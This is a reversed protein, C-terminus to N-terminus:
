EAKELDPALYYLSNEFYILQPLRSRVRFILNKLRNERSELDIQDGYLIQMLEFKSHPRQSLLELLREGLEGLKADPKNGEHLREQWTPLIQNPQITKLELQYKKSLVECATQVEPHNFTLAYFLDEQAQHTRELKFLLDARHVLGMGHERSGFAQRGLIELARYCYKLALHFGELLQFERSINILATAATLGENIELSKEVIQHYESFLRFHPYLCSRSAVASLSARLAKRVAGGRNYLSAAEKYSKEAVEYFKLAQHASACVYLAEARWLPWSPGNMAENLAVIKELDVPQTKLLRRMRILILLDASIDRNGTNDRIAREILDGQGSFFAQMIRLYLMLEPDGSLSQGCNVELDNLELRTAEIVQIWLGELVAEVAPATEVM